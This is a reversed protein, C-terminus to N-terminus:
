KAALHILAIGAQTLAAVAAAIAARKSLLSQRIMADGFAQLEDGKVFGDASVEFKFDKPIDVRSSAFWLVAAAIAAVASVAELSLKLADLTM